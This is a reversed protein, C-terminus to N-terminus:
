SLVVVPEVVDLRAEHLEWGLGSGLGLGLGLGMGMGMGLEM